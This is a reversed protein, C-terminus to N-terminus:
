STRVTIVRTLRLGCECTGDAAKWITNIGIPTYTVPVTALQGCGNIYDQNCRLRMTTPLQSTTETESMNSTYWM